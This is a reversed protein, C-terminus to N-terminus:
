RLTVTWPQLSAAQRPLAQCRPRARKRRSPRSSISPPRFRSRADLLNIEIHRGRRDMSRRFLAACILQAAYLATSIDAPYFTVRRPTGDGDRNKDMFGAIAQLVTDTAPVGAYPGDPGFGSISVYILDPRLLRLAEYGFGLRDAVGPRFNQIVVDVQSAIRAIVTLGDPRAADICLGRKGLNCIMSAATLGSMAAGASRSWDGSPPELKVVDAGHQRLMAGAYPGAIGQSIDLVRVGSLMPEDSTPAM